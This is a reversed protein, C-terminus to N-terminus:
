REEKHEVAPNEAETPFDLKGALSPIIYSNIRSVKM